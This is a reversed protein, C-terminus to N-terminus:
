RKVISTLAATSEFGTGGTLKSSSARDPSLSTSKHQINVPDNARSHILISNLPFLSSFITETEPHHLGM